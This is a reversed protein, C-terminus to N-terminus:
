VDGRLLTCRGGEDSEDLVVVRGAAGTGRRASDRAGGVMGVM